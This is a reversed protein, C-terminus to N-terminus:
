RGKSLNRGTWHAYCNPRATIHIYYGGHADATLEFIVFWVIHTSTQRVCTHLLLLGWLYSMHTASLCELVTCLSARGWGMRCGRVSRAEPLAAVRREHLEEGRLPDAPRLLLVLRLNADM